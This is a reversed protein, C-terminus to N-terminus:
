KQVLQFLGDSAHVSINTSGGMKSNYNRRWENITGTYYIDTVSSPLCNDGLQIGAPLYFKNVNTSSRFVGKGISKVTSPIKIPGVLSECGDFAYDQIEQLGENFTIQVYEFKNYFAYDEIVKLSSPMTFSRTGDVHDFAYGAISEIGEPISLVAWGVLLLRNTATEILCNSNNRSDYVQNDPDVTINRIYYCNNYYNPMYIVSAPINLDYSRYNGDGSSFTPGEMIVRCGPAVQGTSYNHCLLVYPNSDNGLYKGNSYTNYNVGPKPHETEYFMRGCRELSNPIIINKLNDCYGFPTNLEKIGEEFIVTVLSNMRYFVGSDVKTVPIGNYEGPVTITDEPIDDCKTVTYSDGDKVLTLPGYKTGGCSSLFLTLTVSFISIFIYLKKM